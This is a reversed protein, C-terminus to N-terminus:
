GRVIGVFAAAARRLPRRLVPSHPKDASGTDVSPRCHTGGEACSCFPSMNHILAALVLDFKETRQFHDKVAETQRKEYKRDDNGRCRFIHAFEGVGTKGIRFQECAHFHQEVARRKVANPYRCANPKQDGDYVDDEDLRDLVPPRACHQHAYHRENGHKGGDHHHIEHEGDREVLDRCVRGFSHSDRAVLVLFPM